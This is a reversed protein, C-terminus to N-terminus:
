LVLNYKYEEMEESNKERNKKGTGSSAGKCQPSIACAISSACFDASQFYCFV